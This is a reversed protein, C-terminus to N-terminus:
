PVDVRATAVNNLLDFARIVVVHPGEAAPLEPTFEFTEELADSIGDTPHV